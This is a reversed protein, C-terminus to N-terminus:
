VIEPLFVGQLPAVPTWAGGPQPLRLGVGAKEREPDGDAGRFIGGTRGALLRQALESVRLTLDPEQDATREAHSEDPGTVWRFCGNNAPVLPDDIRVTCRTREEAHFLSLFAPINVARAMIIPEKDGDGACTVARWTGRGSFYQGIAGAIEPSPTGNKSQEGPATILERLSVGDEEWWSFLATRERGRCIQFLGGGESVSERASVAMYRADRRVFVDARQALQEQAWAAADAYQDPDVRSVALDGGFAPREGPNLCASRYVTRDYVYRFGFPTYIRPDAPMLYVLPIGAAALDRLGESLLGAMLGRHRREPVTAVGVLYASPIEQGRVSLTVPNWQVMAAPLGNEHRIVIGNEPVKVADYYNLFSLSDEPFMRTWLARAERREAEPSPGFHIM